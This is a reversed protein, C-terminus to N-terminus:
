NINEPLLFFLELKLVNSTSSRHELEKFFSRHELGNEKERANVMCTTVISSCECFFLDSITGHEVSCMMGAKHWPSDQKLRLPAMDKNAGFVIVM